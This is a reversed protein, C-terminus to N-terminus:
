DEDYQADEDGYDGFSQSTMTMTLNPPEALQEYEKAVEDNIKKESFAPIDLREVCNEKLWECVAMVNEAGEYILQDMHGKRFLLTQPLYKKPLDLNEPIENRSMNYMYFKLNNERMLSATKNLVIRARLCDDDKSNYFFVLTDAVSLNLTPWFQEYNLPKLYKRTPEIAESHFTYNIKKNIIDSVFKEVYDYQHILTQNIITYRLTLVGKTEFVLFIPFDFLHLRSSLLFDYAVRGFLPAFTMKEGFKAGLRNMIDFEVSCLSDNEGKIVYGAFYDKEFYSKDLFDSVHSKYDHKADKVEHLTRDLASFTYIGDKIDMNLYKFVSADVKYYHYDKSVYNPREQGGVALISTQKSHLIRRLVEPHEITHINNEFIYKVWRTFNTAGMPVPESDIIKRGNKYAFICPFETCKYGKGDRESARAFTVNDKYLELAFKAFHLPKSRDEFFIVTNEHKKAFEKIQKGSLFPLTDIEGTIEKLRYFILSFMKSLNVCKQWKVTKQPLRFILIQASIPM